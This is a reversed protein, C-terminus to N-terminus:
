FNILQSHSHATCVKEKKEKKERRKEKRREKSKSRKGDRNKDKRHENRRHSAGESSDSGSSISRARRRKEGRDRERSRSRHKRRPERSRSRSRSMSDDRRRKCVPSGLRSRVTDRVRSMSRSRAQRILTDKGDNKTTDKQRKDTEYDPRRPSRSRFNSRDRPMSRQVTKSTM